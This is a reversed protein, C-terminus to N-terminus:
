SKKYPNARVQQKVERDWEKLVTWKGRQDWDPIAALKAQYKVTLPDPRSHNRVKGM